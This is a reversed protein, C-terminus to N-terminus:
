YMLMSSNAAVQALSRKSVPIDGRGGCPECVPVAAVALQEGHLSTQEDPTMITREAGIDITATHRGTM